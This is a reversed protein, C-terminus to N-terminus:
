AGSYPSDAPSQNQQGQKGQERKAIFPKLKRGVRITHQEAVITLNVAFRTGYPASRFPCKPRYFELPMSVRLPEGSM